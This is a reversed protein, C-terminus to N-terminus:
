SNNENYLAIMEDSHSSINKIECNNIIFNNMFKLKEKPNELLDYLCKKLENIDRYILGSKESVLLDKAGVRNSVIVPVGYSLAELVTFGFTENWLSPVILINISEMVSMLNNYTYQKHKVIYPLEGDYNAFIHLRIKVGYKNYLEDCVQKLLYFGKHETIPGLYGINLQEEYEWIRKNDSISDHTISIVKGNRKTSFYRNFIRETNSSNFHIVDMKELMSIYYSRLKKYAESAKNVDKFSNINIDSEDKSEEYLNNNHRKRLALVISSDKINRYIKSQLFKIKNLSLATQNCEVCKKCGDDDECVKGKYILGWKPCIGFYDHTTYVLKIKLKKAVDIFEMPLGMLTHIHIVQINNKKLFSCFIEKDKSQIFSEIDKIGDLLPVPLPNIIEYNMCNLGTKIEEKIHEKIHIERGYDRIRGPWLMGVQHGGKIQEAMLDICYKTMGGTRYPPFGLSYHLINMKDEGKDM